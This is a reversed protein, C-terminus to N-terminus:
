TESAPGRGVGLGLFLMSGLLRLAAAVLLMTGIGVYNALAAGILPAGFTALYNTTHYLGVATGRSAEPATGMLVDFIVLDSGAVFIGAVGAYILLPWVSGTAATLLPYLALGFACLTLVNGAGWRRAIYIWLGYAVLLVGSQVTNILGISSDSAQVVRVWYLPFLPIAMAMGCRFVFQSVVFHTFPRQEKFLRFMRAFSTRWPVQEPPPPPESAPLVINTSFYYSILGGVFSCIFVVQYNLPFRIQELAWGVAAVSLANSIGLTTWRRSMLAMRRTPGAVGSMVLTFCINVLTQPITAIAWIVIIAIPAADGFLFPTIGTLAYSSLVWIRSRAYWTVINTQRGLFQGLPIALLAGTVAPMATLLGVLINSAGLRALFVSLFTAVGAVLGVGLGDIMVYRANREYLSLASPPTSITQVVGRVRHRLQTRQM